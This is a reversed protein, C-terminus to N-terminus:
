SAGPIASNTAYRTRKRQGGSRIPKLDHRMIPRPPVHRAV